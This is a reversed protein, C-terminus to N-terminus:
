VTIYGDIWHDEDLTTQSIHFGQGDSERSPEVVNPHTCFGPQQRLRTIAAQAAAATSYVGIFKLDESGDPQIHLHQLVFVQKM